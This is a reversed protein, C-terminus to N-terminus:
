SKVPQYVLLVLGSKFIRTQVLTLKLRDAINKFLPIGKGLVVPNMMLHYEDILELKTLQEVLSGSGFIMMNKGPLQKLKLFEIM